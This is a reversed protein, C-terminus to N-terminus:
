TNVWLDGIQPSAPATTGVTIKAIGDGQVYGSVSVDVWTFNTGNYSLVQGSTPTNAADLKPETVSNDALGQSPLQAAPVKGTVDLTAVGSAAGKESAPVYTDSLKIPTVSGDPIAASKLSGDANLSQSLYDNLIGGWTGDDAGPIPLRAM